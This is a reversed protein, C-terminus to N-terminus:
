SWSSEECFRVIAPLFRGLEEVYRDSALSATPFRKGQDNVMQDDPYAALWRAPPLDMMRVFFRADPEIEILAEAQEGIGLYGPPMPAPPCHIEGPGTWFPTTGWDNECGGRVTLWFIKRGFRAFRRHAALWPEKWAAGCSCYSPLVVPQGDAVFVPKGFRVEVAYREPFRPTV